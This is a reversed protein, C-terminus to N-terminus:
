EAPLRGHSTIAPRAAGKLETALRRANRLLYINIIVGLAQFVIAFWGVGGLFLGMLFALAIWVICGTLFLTVLGPRRILVARLAVGLAVYALALAANVALSLSTLSHGALSRTFPQVGAFIGGLVLYAQMSGLTEKM